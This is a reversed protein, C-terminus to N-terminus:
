VKKCDELYHLDCVVGQMAECYCQYKCHQCKVSVNRINHQINQWDVTTYKSPDGFMSYFHQMIPYPPYGIQLLLLFYHFRQRWEMHQKGKGHELPLIIFWVGVNKCVLHGTPQAPRSRLRLYLALFLIQLVDWM